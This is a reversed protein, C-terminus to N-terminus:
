AGGGPKWLTDDLDRALAEEIVEAPVDIAAHDKVM